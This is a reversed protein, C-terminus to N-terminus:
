IPWAHDERTERDKLIVWCDGVVEAGRGNLRSSVVKDSRPPVKAQLWVVSLVAGHVGGDIAFDALEFLGSMEDQAHVGADRAATKREDISLIMLNQLHSCSEEVRRGMGLGALAEGDDAPTKAGRASVDVARLVAELVAKFRELFVTENRLIGGFLVKMGCFAVFLGELETNVSEIAFQGLALPGEHQVREAFPASVYRVALASLVFRTLAALNERGQCFVLLQHVFGAPAGNPFPECAQVPAPVAPACVVFAYGMRLQDVFGM